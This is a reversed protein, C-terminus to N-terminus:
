ASRGGTEAECADQRFSICEGATRARLVSANRCRGRNESALDRMAHEYSLSRTRYQVTAADKYILGLADIFERERNSGAGIEQARQIEKQAISITSPAIPPEWLQHFYSMAMGWHAMACRPDQEAVGKFADEAATYAFSHLLAVGRNFQEQVAPACSVPFSVRGLKEPVGHSHSEQASAFPLIFFLTFSIRWLDPMGSELLANREQADSEVCFCYGGNSQEGHEAPPVSNRTSNAVTYSFFSM